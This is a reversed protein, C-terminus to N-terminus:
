DLHAGTTSVRGDNTAGGSPRDETSPRTTGIFRTSNQPVTPNCTTSTDACDAPDEYKLKQYQKGCYWHALQNDTLGLELKSSDSCGLQEFPVDTYLINM